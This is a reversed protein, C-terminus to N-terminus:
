PPLKRMSGIQTAEDGAEGALQALRADSTRVRRCLERNVNQLVLVYAKINREYLRHLAATSLELLRAPQEVSVTWARPQMEILTMEGFFDGAKFHRLRVPVGGALQTAILLGELVVYMSRGQEGERFVAEGVACRLEKTMEVILELASEELGGFFPTQLLFSRLDSPAAM